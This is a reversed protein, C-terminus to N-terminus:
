GVEVAAGSLDFSLLPPSSNDTLDGTVDRLTRSYEFGAVSCLLELQLSQGSCWRPLKWLFFPCLNNGEPLHTNSMLSCSKTEESRAGGQIFEAAQFM